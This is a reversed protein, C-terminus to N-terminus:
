ICLGAIALIALIINWTRQSETTEELQAVQTRLREIEETKAKDNTELQGVRDKLELIEAIIQQAKKQLTQADNESRALDDQSLRLGGELYKLRDDFLNMKASLAVLEDRFEKSLNSITAVDEKTTLKSGLAMENLIKAVLVAADYRTMPQDGRFTGDQYYTLYGKEVLSVVAKYAWHNPPVDTPKASQAMAPFAVTLSLVLTLLVPTLWRNMLKM